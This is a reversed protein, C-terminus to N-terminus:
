CGGERVDPNKMLNNMKRHVSQFPQVLGVLSLGLVTKADSYNQFDFEMVEKKNLEVVEIYENEEEIGGGNGAKKSVTVYYMNLRETSYCPVANLSAMLEITDPVYGTEELVEEYIAQTPLIDSPMGGVMELLFGNIGPRYQKVFVYKDTKTNYVLASVALGIEVFERDFFKGNHELKYKYLKLFETKELKEKSIVNM